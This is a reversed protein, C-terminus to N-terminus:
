GSQPSSASSTLSELEITISLTDDDTQSARLSGGIAAIREAPSVGRVTDGDTAEVTSPDLKRPPDLVARLELRIGQGKFPLAAISVSQLGPVTKLRLFVDRLVQYLLHEQGHSLGPSAKWEFTLRAVTNRLIEHALSRVAAELGKQQLLTPVLADLAKRLDEVARSLDARVQKALEALSDVDAGRELELAAELRRLKSAAQAVAQVPGSGLMTATRGREDEFVDVLRVLLDSRRADETALRENLKQIRHDLELRDTVDRLVLQVGGRPSQSGSGEFSRTGHPGKFDVRIVARTESPGASGRERDQDDKREPSVVLEFPSRDVLETLKRGIVQHPEIMMAECFAPNVLSVTGDPELELIPEPADRVLMSYRDAAQRAQDYLRRGEVFGIYQRALVLGATVATVAVLIETLASTAAVVETVLLTLLVAGLTALPLWNTTRSHPKELTPPYEASHPAVLVICYSSASAAARLVPDPWYPLSPWRASLAVYTSYGLVIVAVPTIGGIGLFGRSYRRTFHVVWFGTTAGSFVIWARYGLGNPGFGLNPGSLAEFIGITGVAVVAVDILDVVVALGAANARVTLFVLYTILAVAAVFLAVSLVLYPQVVGLVLGTRYFVLNLFMCAFAAAAVAWAKGVRPDDSSSDKRRSTRWRILSGAAPILFLSAFTFAAVLNPPRASPAEIESMAAAVALLAQLPALYWLIASSRPEQPNSRTSLSSGYGTGM